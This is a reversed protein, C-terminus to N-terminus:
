SNDSYTFALEEIKRMAAAVEAAHIPEEKLVHITESARTSQMAIEDIWHLPIGTEKLSIPLGIKKYFGILRNVESTKNELTLQVLVGYAVKDGHLAQHSEPAITMANHIAHAGAVRGYKDGFGGVMGGLMIISEAVKIFAPSLKGNKADTIAAEANDFMEEACLKATAHAIKLAIPPDEFRSIQVDAEYWKAITDGIGAVLMPVPADILIRPEVLLLDVSGPYVTYHTMTGEETYLVSLPTWPACNSALTPILVSLIGTDHAVGKAIDLVKGGGAGIIADTGLSKILDAVRSIEALSSEGHYIEFAVEIKKLEPFFPRMALWSKTGTLVLVKKVNRAILKEELKDLVGSNCVYEAPAGKVIIDEM